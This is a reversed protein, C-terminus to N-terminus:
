EDYACWGLRGGNNRRGAPASRRFDSRTSSVDGGPLCRAPEREFPRRRPGGDHAPSATCFRLPLATKLDVSRGHEHLLDAFAEHALEQFNPQKQKRAPWAM